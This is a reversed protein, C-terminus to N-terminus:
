RRAESINPFYYNNFSYMRVSCVKWQWISRMENEGVWRLSVKQLCHMIIKGDKNKCLKRWFSFNHTGSLVRVRLKLSSFNGCNDDIAIKYKLLISTWVDLNRTIGQLGELDYMQLIQKGLKFKSTLSVQHVTWNRKSIWRESRNM